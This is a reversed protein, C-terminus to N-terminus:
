IIKGLTVGALGVQKFEEWSIFGDGDLDFKRFATEVKDVRPELVTSFEEQEVGCCCLLSSQFVQEHIEVFTYIQIFVKGGKLGQVGNSNNYSRSPKKTSSQKM